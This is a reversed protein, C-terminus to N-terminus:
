SLTVSTEKLIGLTEFDLRVARRAFQLKIGETPDYPSINTQIPSTILRTIRPDQIFLNAKTVATASPSDIATVKGGKITVTAGLYHNPVVRSNAGFNEKLIRNMHVLPSDSFNATLGGQATQYVDPTVMLIATMNPGALGGYKLSAKLQKCAAATTSAALAVTSVNLATTFETGVNNFGTVGYKSDGVFAMLDQRLAMVSAHDALRAQINYVSKQVREYDAASLTYNSYLLPVNATLKQVTFESDVGGVIDAEYGVAVDDVTDWYDYTQDTWSLAQEQPFIQESLAEWEVRAKIFDSYKTVAEPEFNYLTNLQATAM